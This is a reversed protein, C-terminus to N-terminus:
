GECDTIDRKITDNDWDFMISDFPPDDGDLAFVADIGDERAYEMAKEYHLGCDVQAPDCKLEYGLMIRSGGESFGFVFVRAIM